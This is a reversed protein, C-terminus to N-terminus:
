GSADAEGDASPGPLPRVGRAQFLAPPVRLPQGVLPFPHVFLLALSLFLLSLLLLPVLLLLLLLLVLSRRARGSSPTRVSVSRHGSERRGRLLELLLHGGSDTM